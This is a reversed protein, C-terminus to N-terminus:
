ALHTKVCCKKKKKNYKQAFCKRKGKGTYEIGKYIVLQAQPINTLDSQFPRTACTSFRNALLGSFLLAQYKLLLV